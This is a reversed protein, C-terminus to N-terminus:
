IHTFKNTQEDRSVIPNRKSGQIKILAALLSFPTQFNPFDTDMIKSHGVVM